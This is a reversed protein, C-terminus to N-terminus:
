QYINLSVFVSGTCKASKMAGTISQLKKFITKCTLTDSEKPTPPIRHVDCCSECRLKVPVPDALVCGILAAKVNVLNKWIKRFADCKCKKVIEVGSAEDVGPLEKSIAKAAEILCQSQATSGEKLMCPPIAKMTVTM